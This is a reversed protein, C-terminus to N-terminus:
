GGTAGKHIGGGWAFPGHVETRNHGMETGIQSSGLGKKLWKSRGSLGM